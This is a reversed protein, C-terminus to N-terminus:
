PHKELTLEIVIKLENENYRQDIPLHIINQTLKFEFSDNEVWNLVNPWYQAVFIKNAILKKRLAENDTAFYPYVMPCVYKAKEIFPTLLNTSKLQQHLYNFNTIRQTKIKEFDIGRIIKSTLLSMQKIPQNILKADNLKFDNYSLEKSLDTSKLLHSCREYSHDIPYNKCSIENAHYVFSGDPLGFFKRPSYFTPITPHPMDYFAQSNDIILNEFKRKLLHINNGMLGFYNTYLLAETSNIKSLLPLFNNDIHYFTYPTSTKELPELIVDCTYYPIYVHTYKKCNLIHELANRGTNLAFANYHYLSGLDNIELEFFGGISQRENM